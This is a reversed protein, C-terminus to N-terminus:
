VSESRNGFTRTGLRFSLHRVGPFSKEILNGIDYIIKEIFNAQYISTYTIREPTEPTSPLTYYATRIAEINRRLRMMDQETRFDMPKWTTKVDVTNGYGYANLVESVHQIASEVRNLDNYDIFAKHTLNDLDAQVRDFILSDLIESM